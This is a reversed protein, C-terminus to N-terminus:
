GLWEKKGPDRRANFRGIERDSIGTARVLEDLWEQEEHDLGAPRDRDATLLEVMEEGAQDQNVVARFNPKGLPLDQWEVDEAMCRDHARETAVLPSDSDEIDILLVTKRFLTVRGTVVVAVTKV